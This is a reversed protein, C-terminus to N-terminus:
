SDHYMNCHTATHQLTNYSDQTVACALEEVCKLLLPLLPVHTHRHHDLEWTACVYTMGCVYSHHCVHTRDCVYHTLACPHLRICTHKGYSICWTVSEHCVCMFSTVCMHATACMILCAVHMHSHHDLEWSLYMQITNCLYTSDCVNHPM